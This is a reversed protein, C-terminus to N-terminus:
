SYLEKTIKTLQLIQDEAFYSQRIGFDVTIPFRLNLEERKINIVSGIKRNYLHKVKEAGEWEHKSFDIIVKDGVKVFVVGKRDKRLIEM